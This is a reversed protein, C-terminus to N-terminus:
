RRVQRIAKPPSQPAFLCLTAEELFRVHQKTVTARRKQAWRTLKRVRAHLSSLVKAPDVVLISKAPPEAPKEETTHQKRKATQRLLEVWSKQDPLPKFEIVSAVDHKADAGGPSLPGDTPRGAQPSTPAVAAGQLGLASGGQLLRLPSENPPSDPKVSLGASKAILVHPRSARLDPRLFATKLSPRM